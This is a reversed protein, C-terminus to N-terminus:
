YENLKTPQTFNYIGMGLSFAKGGGGDGPYPYITNVKINVKTDM